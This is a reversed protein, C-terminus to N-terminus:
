SIVKKLNDYLSLSSGRRSNSWTDAEQSALAASFVSHIFNRAEKKGYMRKIRKIAKLSRKTKSTM